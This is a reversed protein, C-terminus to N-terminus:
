SPVGERLPSHQAEIPRPLVPLLLIRPKAFQQLGLHIGLGPLAYRNLRGPRECSLTAQGPGWDRSVPPPRNSARITGGWPLRCAHFQLRGPGRPGPVGLRDLRSRSPWAAPTTIAPRERAKVAM